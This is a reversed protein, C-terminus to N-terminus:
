PIWSVFEPNGGCDMCCDSLDILKIAQKLSERYRNLYLENLTAADDLGITTYSSLRNTYLRFEMLQAGLLYRWANRLLTKNECIIDTYSCYPSIDYCKSIEELFDIEFRVWAENQADNWLGKFTVQDADATNEMGSLSIGPLSNIFLGSVPNEGGCMRIGIYDFFCNMNIHRMRVV